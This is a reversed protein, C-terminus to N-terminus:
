TELYKITIGKETYELEVSDEYPILLLEQILIDKINELSLEIKVRKKRWRIQFNDKDWILNAIRIFLSHHKGYFM